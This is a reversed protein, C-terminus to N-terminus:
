CRIAGFLARASVVHSADAIRDLSAQPVSITGAGGVRAVLARHAAQLDADQASLVREIDALTTTPKAM